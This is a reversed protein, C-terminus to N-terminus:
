PHPLAGLRQRVWGPDPNIHAEGDIVVTPVTENGDAVARVAAAAEPDRWINVWRVRGATRGLRVRLRICYPCGPRWYVVPVSAGSLGPSSAGRWPFILPSMFAALVANVLFAAMAGGVAEAPGGGRSLRAAAAVLGVTLFFACYGWTRVM